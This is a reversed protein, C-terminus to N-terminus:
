RNPFLKKELEKPSLLRQDAVRSATHSGSSHVGVHASKANPRHVNFIWDRPAHSIIALEIVADAFNRYRGIDIVISSVEEGLAKNHLSKRRTVTRVVVLLKRSETSTIEVVADDGLTRPTAAVVTARGTRREFPPLQIWTMKTLIKASFEALAALQSARCITASHAEHAFHHANIEGKRAILLSGCVCRLREAGGGKAEEIFIRKGDDRLGWVIMARGSDGTAERNNVVYGLSNRHQPPRPETM